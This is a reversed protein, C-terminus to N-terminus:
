ENPSTTRYYEQADDKMSRSSSNPKTTWFFGISDLAQIKEQTMSSKKGEIMLKYQRRQTHVWTGLKPNDALSISLYIPLFLSNLIRFTQSLNIISYSLVLVVRSVFISSV